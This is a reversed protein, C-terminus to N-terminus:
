KPAAAKVAREAQKWHDKTSRRLAQIVFETDNMGMTASLIRVQNKLDNPIRFSIPSTAVAPEGMEESKKKRPM